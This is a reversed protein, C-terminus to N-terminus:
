AIIEFTTAVDKSFNNAANESYETAHPIGSKLLRGNLMIILQIIQYKIISCGKNNCALYIHFQM